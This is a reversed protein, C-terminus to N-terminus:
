YKLYLAIFLTLHETSSTQSNSGLISEQVVSGKLASNYKICEKKISKVHDYSYFVKPFSMGCIYEARLILLLVCGDALDMLLVLSHIM